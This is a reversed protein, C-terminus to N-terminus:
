KKKLREAYKERENVITALIGNVFKGSDPTSFKKALVIAENISVADPPSPDEISLLLEVMAMRLVILDIKAIRELTWGRALEGIIEDLEETHRVVLNVWDELFERAKGKIEQSEITRAVVSEADGKGIEIEYCCALAMERTKRRSTTQTDSNTEKM